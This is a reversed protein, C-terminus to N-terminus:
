REDMAQNDCRSVDVIEFFGPDFHKIGEGSCVEWKTGHPVRIGPRTLLLKASTTLRTRRSQSLSTSLSFTEASSVHFAGTPPAFCGREKQRHVYRLPGPQPEDTEAKGPFELRRLRWLNFFPCVATPCAPRVARRSRVGWGRS